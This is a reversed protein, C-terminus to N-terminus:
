IRDKYLVYALIGQEQRHMTIKPDWQKQFNALVGILTMTIRQQWANGVQSEGKDTKKHILLYLFPALTFEKLFQLENL